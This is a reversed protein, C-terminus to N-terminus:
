FLFWNKISQIIQPIHGMWQASSISEGLKGTLLSQLIELLKLITIWPNIWFGYIHVSCCWLKKLGVGGNNERRALWTLVRFWLVFSFIFWECLFFSHAKWQFSFWAFFGFSYLVCLVLSPKFFIKELCPFDDLPNCELPDFRCSGPLILLEQAWCCGFYSKEAWCWEEKRWYDSSSHSACEPLPPLPNVHFLLM